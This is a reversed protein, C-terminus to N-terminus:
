EQMEGKKMEGELLNAGRLVVKKGDLVGNAVGIWGNGRLQPEIPQQKFTVTENNSAVVVFCYSTEGDQLVASEPIAMLAMSNTQIDAVLPMGPLYGKSNNPLAIHLAYTKREPDMERSIYEIKANLAPLSANPFRLSIPQGTQVLAIDKAFVEVHAHLNDLGIINCLLTGEEVRAGLNTPISTINGSMPATVIITKALNLNDPNDLQELGIGLYRLKAAIAQVDGKARALKSQAEEYNKTAGVNQSSLTKQRACEKELFILDAKVQLYNQQLDFITSSSISVLAQGKQINQGEHVFFQEIRGAMKATVTAKGEPLTAVVGNASFTAAINRETLMGLEIGAKEIQANNLVIGEVPATEAVTPTTPTNNCGSLIGVILIYFLINKM